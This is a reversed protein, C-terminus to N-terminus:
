GSSRKTTIVSGSDRVELRWVSGNPSSLMIAENTTERSLMRDRMRDLESALTKVAIHVESFNSIKEPLKIPM